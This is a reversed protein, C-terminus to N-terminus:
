EERSIADLIRKWLDHPCQVMESGDFNYLACQEALVRLPPEVPRPGNLILDIEEPESIGRPM